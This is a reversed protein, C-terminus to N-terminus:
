YWEIFPTSNGAKKILKLFRNCNDPPQRGISIVTFYSIDKIIIKGKVIHFSIPLSLIRLLFIWFITTNKINIAMIAVVTNVPKAINKYSFPGTIVLGKKNGCPVKSRVSSRFAKIRNWWM